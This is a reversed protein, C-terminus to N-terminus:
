HQLSDVPITPQPRHQAAEMDHAARRRLEPVLAPDSVTITLEIANADGRASIHLGPLDLPCDDMLSRGLMMWARHCRMAALLRDPPGADTSLLVLVGDPLPGTGLGYRQLPSVAVVDRPAERCAEEYEAELQAAASRHIQAIRRHDEATNWTGYWTGAALQAGTSTGDAGPRTDPWRTMEMARDDERDAIALHQDARLGRPGAKENATSAACAALICLVLSCRM